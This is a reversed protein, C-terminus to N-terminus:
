LNLEFPRLAKALYYEPAYTSKDMEHRVVLFHVVAAVLAETQEETLRYTRLHKLLALEIKQKEEM